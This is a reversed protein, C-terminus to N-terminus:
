RKKDYTQLFIQEFGVRPLAKLIKKRTKPSVSRRGAILQSVHGSTLKAWRAFSRQSMNEVALIEQFAKPKIYIRLRAM